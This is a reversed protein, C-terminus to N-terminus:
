EIKLGLLYYNKQLFLFFCQIIAEKRKRYWFQSCITVKKLTEQFVFFFLTFYIYHTILPKDFGM